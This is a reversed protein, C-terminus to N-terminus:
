PRPFRARAFRSVIWAVGWFALAIPALAVAVALAVFLLIAVAGATFAKIVFPLSMFLVLAVTFGILPFLAHSLRRSRPEPLARFVPAPAYRPVVREGGPLDAVLRRVDAVTAGAFLRELREELEDASLRGEACCDRLFDAVRQREAESTRMASVRDHTLM